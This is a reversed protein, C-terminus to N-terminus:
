KCILDDAGPQKGAAYVKQFEQEYLAAIAADHIILVNDDNIQEAAKTFNYSGTIVIQQDIIIVKHHMTYRNGDQRVPLGACFLTPLVGQSAGRNEIVGQVEVGAQSRAIMAAALDADTYTFAMFHISRKANVVHHILKDMVRDPPSFYNEVQVGNLILASRLAGVEARAGFQGAIFMENFKAQYNAIVEPATIRLLNNENRYTDNYSANWSGIFLTQGDIIFLKDHMLGNSRGGDVVAINAAQLAKLADFDAQGNDAGNKLQTSGNLQDLVARVQVGRRAALTLATTISPLNFDFSALDISTKAQALAGIVVADIGPTTELPPAAARNTFGLTTILPTFANEIGELFSTKPPPAPSTFYVQLWASAGVQSADASPWPTIAATPLPQLTPSPSFVGLLDRGNIIFILGFIALVATLVIVTAPTVSPHTSDKPSKAM